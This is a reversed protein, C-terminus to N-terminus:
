KQLFVGDYINSQTRYVGGTNGIFVDKLEQFHMFIVHSIFVYFCMKRESKRCIRNIEPLCGELLWERETFAMFIFLYIYFRYSFGQRKSWFYIGRNGTVYWLFLQGTPRCFAKNKNNNIKKRLQVIIGDYLSQMLIRRFGTFTSM